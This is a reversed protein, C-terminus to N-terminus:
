GHVSAQTPGAGADEGRQEAARAKPGPGRMYYKSPEYSREFVKLLALTARSTRVLALKAQALLM